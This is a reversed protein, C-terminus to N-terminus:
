EYKIDDFIIPIHEKFKNLILIAIERMQPHAAKSTRLEFFLRWERLNATMIIETKLSNPLVARAEQPTCGLGLLMQYSTESMLMHTLWATEKARVEKTYELVTNSDYEGKEIDMFCPIIFTAGGKYNVYRTSEQLYSALRHRVVEHSVGRDCIIRVSVSHHEIIGFHKRKIVDQIFRIASDDTIREESKYCNRGFLELKKLIEIGSLEFGSEVKFSPKILKMDNRLGAIANPTWLDSVCLHATEKFIYAVAFRRM